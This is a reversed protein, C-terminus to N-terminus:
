CTVRQKRTYCVYSVATPEKLQKAATVAAKSSKQQKREVVATRREEEEQENNASCQLEKKWCKLV